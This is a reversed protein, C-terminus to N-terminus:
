GCTVRTITEAEDIQINLRSPSFDMTVATGPRIIRTATGFRMTQLVSAPQGLLSQLAAAGCDAAPPEPQACATTILACLLLALPRDM